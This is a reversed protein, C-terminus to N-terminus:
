SIKKNGSYILWGCIALMGWAWLFGGPLDPICDALAAVAMMLAFAIAHRM